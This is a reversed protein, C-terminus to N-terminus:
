SDLGPRTARCEPRRGRHGSARGKYWLTSRRRRGRHAGADEAGPGRRCVRHGGPVAGQIVGFAARLQHPVRLVELSVALAIDDIAVSAGRSTAATRCGERAREPRQAQEWPAADHWLARVAGYVAARVARPGGGRRVDGM